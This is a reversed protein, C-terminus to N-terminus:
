VNNTIYHDETNIPRGIIKYLIQNYNITNCINYIKSSLEYLAM